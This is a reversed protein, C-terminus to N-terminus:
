PGTALAAAAMTRVGPDPDSLATYFATEAPHTQFNTQFAHNSLEVRLSPYHLVVLASPAHAIAAAVLVVLAGLVLRLGPMRAM